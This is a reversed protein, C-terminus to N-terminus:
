WDVVLYIVEAFGDNDLKDETRAKIVHRSEAAMFLLSILTDYNPHTKPILYYGHRPNMATRGGTLTFFLRTPDAYLRGVQGYNQDYGGEAMTAEKRAETVEIQRKRLTTVIETFREPGVQQVDAVQRLNTFGGLERRRDLIHQAVRIGVDREGPIEVAIAIEEASEASNLFDLVKQVDEASVDEPKVYAETM